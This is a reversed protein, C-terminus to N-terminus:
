IETTKMSYSMREYLFSLQENVLIPDGIQLLQEKVIQAEDVATRGNYCSKQILEIM